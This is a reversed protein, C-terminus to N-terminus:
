LMQPLRWKSKSWEVCVKREVAEWSQKIFRHGFFFFGLPIEKREEAM